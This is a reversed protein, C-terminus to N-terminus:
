PCAPRARGAVGAHDVDHGGSQGAALEDAPVGGSQGTGLELGVQAGADQAVVLDEEVAVDGLAQPGPHGDLQSPHDVRESGGATSASSAKGVSGVWTTAAM